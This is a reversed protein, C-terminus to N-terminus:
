RGDRTGPGDAHTSRHGEGEIKRIVVAITKRYGIQKVILFKDKRGNDITM